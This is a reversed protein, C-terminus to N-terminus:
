TRQVAKEDYRAPEGSGTEGKRTLVEEVGEINVPVASTIGNEQMTIGLLSDAIEMTIKNHTIIIFQTEESFKKLMRTFRRTNADDLPADVEDLICFPSPKVKYFAFLLALSTLAREGGSLLSIDQLKKGKPRAVIEIDAELPDVNESLRLEAEGGTFLVQFTQSFYEGVMRFTERFLRRAKRNIRAIAERLEEKAKILDERQGHIFDLREKIEEYEEVAALNVPGLRELKDRTKELMEPTVRKEEETLPIEVGEM